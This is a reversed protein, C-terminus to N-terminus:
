IGGNQIHTLWREIEWSNYDHNYLGGPYRATKMVSNSRPNYAMAGITDWSHDSFQKYERIVDEIDDMLYTVATAECRGHTIYPSFVVAYGTGTHKAVYSREGVQDVTFGYREFLDIIENYM